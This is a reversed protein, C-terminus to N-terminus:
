QAEKSESDAEPAATTATASWIINGVASKINPDNPYATSVYGKATGDFINATSFSVIVRTGGANEDKAYGFAPFSQTTERILQADAITGMVDSLQMVVDESARREEIHKWTEDTMVILNGLPDNTSSIPKGKKTM